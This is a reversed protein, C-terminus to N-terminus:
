VDLRVRIWNYTEGAKTVRFFATKDGLRKMAEVGREVDDPSTVFMEYSDSQIRSVLGGVVEDAKDGAEKEDFSVLVVGSSETPIDYQSMLEKTLPVLKLNSLSLTLAYEQDAVM